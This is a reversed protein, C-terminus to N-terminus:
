FNSNKLATLRGRVSLDLQKDLTRVRVGGVLDKDKRAIIKVNQAKFSRSIEQKTAESMDYASTAVVELIGDRELRLREVERMIRDLDSTRHEASLYEAIEKSIEQSNKGRDILACVAEAIEHYTTKSV